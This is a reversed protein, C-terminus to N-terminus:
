LGLPPLRTANDQEPRRRSKTPPLPSATKPTRSETPRQQQPLQQAGARRGRAQRRQVEVEMTAKLFLGRLPQTLHRRRSSHKPAVPLFRGYYMVREM